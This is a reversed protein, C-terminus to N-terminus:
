VVKNNCNSVDKDNCDDGGSYDDGHEYVTIKDVFSICIVALVVLVVM